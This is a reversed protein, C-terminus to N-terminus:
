PTVADRTGLVYSVNTFDMDVDRNLLASRVRKIIRQKIEPERDTMKMIPAGEHSRAEAVSRGGARKRVGSGM